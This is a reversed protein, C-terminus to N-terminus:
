MFIKAGKQHVADVVRKWGETQAKSYGGVGGPLSVDDFSIQACETIILGADARASYYEVHLDNPIGDASEARCRAMSAM